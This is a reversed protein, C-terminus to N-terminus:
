RQAAVFNECIAHAACTCRSDLPRDCQYFARTLMAADEQTLTIKETSCTNNEGSGSYISIFLFRGACAPCRHLEYYQNAGSASKGTITYIYNLDKNCQLCHNKMVM